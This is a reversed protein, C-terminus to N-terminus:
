HVRGPFPAVRAYCLRAARQSLLSNVSIMAPLAQVRRPGLPPILPSFIVDIHLPGIDWKDSGALLMKKTNSVGGQLLFNFPDESVPAGTFCGELWSRKLVSGPVLLSLCTRVDFAKSLALTALCPCAGLPGGLQKQM